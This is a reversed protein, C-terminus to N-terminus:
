PNIHKSAIPGICTKQVLGEFPWLVEQDSSSNQSSACLSQIEAHSWFSLTIGFFPKKIGPCVMVELHDSKKLPEALPVLADVSAVAEAEGVNQYLPKGNLWARVNPGGGFGVFHSGVHPTLDQPEVFVCNAVHEAQDEGQHGLENKDLLQRFNLYSTAYATQPTKFEAVISKKQTRATPLSYNFSREFNKLLDSDKLKFIAHTTKSQSIPVDPFVRQFHPDKDFDANIKKDDCFMYKAKFVHKMLFHLDSVEGKKMDERAAHLSPNALVLFSPDLIDVFSMLPRKYMLYPSHSWNCNLVHASEDKPLTDLASFIMNVKQVNEPQSFMLRYEPKVVVFQAISFCAVLATASVPIHKLIQILLLAGTPILYEQGRPMLLSAALFFCFSVSLFMLLAHDEKQDTKPSQSLSGICFFGLVLILGPLLSHNLWKPTNWPMLEGGYQVSGNTANNSAIDFVIDVIQKLITVNGPFYPHVLSGIILGAMCFLSLKMYQTNSVLATFFAAAILFGPIQLGHYSLSFFASAILLLYKRQNIFAVLIVIFLLVALTQPRVMVMRRLFYPELLIFVLPVWFIRLGLNKIAQFTIIITSIAGFVLPTARLGAEGFFSYFFRTIVHYLYEKDTFLVDWGIGKVQPVTEPFGQTAIQQSLAVHYYYDPDTMQELM